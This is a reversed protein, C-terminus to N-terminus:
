VRGTIINHINRFKDLRGKPVVTRFLEPREHICMDYLIQDDSCLGLELLRVYNERVAEVLWPLLGRPVLFFSGAVHEVYGFVRSSLNSPSTDALAKAPDVSVVIRDGLRPKFATPEPLWRDRATRRGIGFDVWAYFAHSTCRYAAELADMKALMIINYLPSLSEMRLDGAFRSRFDPDIMIDRTRALHQMAPLQEVPVECLHSFDGKHSGLIASEGCLIFKEVPLQSFYSAYYSLYQDASRAQEGYRETAERGIEYFMTVALVSGAPVPAHRTRLLRPLRM